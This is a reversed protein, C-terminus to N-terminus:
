AKDFDWAIRAAVSAGDIGCFAMQQAITGHPVFRNGTNLAAGSLSLPLVGRNDELLYVRGSLLPLVGGTDLPALRTIKVVGAAVGLRGLLAAADLAENVLIGYTVITADEGARLL